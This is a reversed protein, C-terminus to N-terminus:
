EDKFGNEIALVMSIHEYSLSKQDEIALLQATKVLNKIQRGNLVVKALEDLESAKFHSPVQGVFNEWIQRRSKTTLDPYKMHVHIRSQFAPDINDVRNTTLFLTGQYYELLRLFISVLRNRDMDHISRAELFVDCEDILLIAKWKAVLELISALNYEVSSPRTGLDGASMMYLPVQMNESVAEATLTKGVGPPGSLLLIMGKGKGAVVDDFKNATAAQTKSLALVLKKQAAPLVLREFANTNWKIPEVYDIYFSLWKKTNLSYGRLIPTCLMYQNDSLKAPKSGSKERLSLMTNQENDFESPPNWHGDDENTPEDSTTVSGKVKSNLPVTYVKCQMPQKCFSDTDIVIRGKNHVLINGDQTREIAPGDYSRYHCGSVAAFRKGREILVLKLQEKRPHFALPLIRLETIPQIGEFEPLKVYEESWGFSKGNWNVCQCKLGFFNGDDDSKEYSASKLRLAVQEGIGSSSLVVAGPQFVTWAHEYTVVGNQVYDQLAKITDALEKQLIDSLLGLHSKTVSDLDDRELYELIAGWRHIFPAFPAKFVLRDLNCFVGPYGELIEGLAAKLASSQIVISHIEYGKRSDKSKQQRLVVAHGITDKGEAPETNEPEKATWSDEPSNRYINASSTLSGAPVDDKPPEKTTDRKETAENSSAKPPEPNAVPDGANSSTSSSTEKRVFTYGLHNALAELGPPTETNGAM